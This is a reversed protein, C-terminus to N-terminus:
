LTCFVPISTSFKKLLTFLCSTHFYSNNFASSSFIIQCIEEESPPPSSISHPRTSQSMQASQYTNMSLESPFTAESKLCRGLSAKTNSLLYVLFFSDIHVVVCYLACLALTHTVSLLSQLCRVQVLTLLM